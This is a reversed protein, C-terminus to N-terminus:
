QIVQLKSGAPQDLVFKSDPVDASMDMKVVDIVVGYGDKRRNIDVHSPFMAGNNYSQWKSYSTDSEVGGKEDYVKQRVITLDTRDFWVERGPIPTGDPAKRNFELRYLANDEDTDDKFMVTETAPDAPSILLSSFFAQPRLNELKNQSTAPASNSGEVFLNKSQLHFRFNTGDSVMDIALTRVVPLYAIIRVSAPKRFLIYGTFDNYEKVQGSEVTGQSFGMTISAQFTNIAEYNRKIVARLDEMTATKLVPSSGTVRKNGRFIVRRTVLCSCLLFSLLVAAVVPWLRRLNGM